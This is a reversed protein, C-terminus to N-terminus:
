GGDIEKHTPPRRLYTLLYVKMKRYPINSEFDIVTVPSELVILPFEFDGSAVPVSM